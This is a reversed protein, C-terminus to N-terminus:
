GSRGSGSPRAARGAKVVTSDVPPVGSGRGPEDNGSPLLAAIKRMLTSVPYRSLGRLKVWRVPEPSIGGDARRAVACLFPRVTATIHTFAYDMEPVRGRIKVDIGFEKRLFTRLLKKEDPKRGRRSIMVPFQWLRGLLGRTENRHILFRGDKEVLAVAWEEERPKRALGKKTPLAGQSRCTRRVPCELCRPQIPGCIGAGLDMMAQNFDSARRLPIWAEWTRELDADFSSRSFIRGIVRKANGDVAPVARGFAISAVAGATYSGVGPLELLAQPSSPIKGGLDRWVMGAAAHLNRARAYYGLGSWVRLVRELPAAALSELTPFVELFRHFYPTVTEARTQQLMFESILIRYPDHNKRWPLDRRHTKYWRLLSRQFARKEPLVKPAPLPLFRLLSEHIKFGSGRLHPM